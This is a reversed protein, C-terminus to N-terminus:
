GMLITWNFITYLTIGFLLAVIWIIMTALMLRRRNFCGMFNRRFRWAAVFWIGLGLAVGGTVEHIVSVVSALELPHVVIIDPFVALVFSPIMIALVVALQLFVASAMMAGHKRFNLMRYFWYGYLILFLVAVQIVLSVTVIVFTANLLAM